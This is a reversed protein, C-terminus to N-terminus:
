ADRDVLGSAVRQAADRFPNKEKLNMGRRSPLLLGERILEAEYAVVQEDTMRRRQADFKSWDAECLGRRNGTTPAGCRLCKGEAKCEEVHRVVTRKPKAGMAAEVIRWAPSIEAATLVSRAASYSFYVWSM